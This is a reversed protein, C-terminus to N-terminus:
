SPKNEQTANLAQTIAQKIAINPGQAANLAQTIAQQIAVLIAGKPLPTSPECSQLRHITDQNVIIASPLYRSQKPPVKLVVNVVTM